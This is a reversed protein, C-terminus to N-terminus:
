PHSSPNKIFMASATTTIISTLGEVHERLKKVDNRDSRIEKLVEELASNVSSSIYKQLTGIIRLMVSEDM